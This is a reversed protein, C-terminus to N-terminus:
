ILGSIIHGKVNINEGINVECQEDKRGNMVSRKESLLM